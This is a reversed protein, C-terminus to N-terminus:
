KTFPCQSYVNMYLGVTYANGQRVGRNYTAINLLRQFSINPEIYVYMRIIMSLYLIYKYIGNSCFHVIQPCLYIPPYPQSILIYFSMCRIDNNWSRVRFLSLHTMSGIQHHCYLLICTNEFDDYSVHTLQIRVAGYILMFSLQSFQSLRLCM